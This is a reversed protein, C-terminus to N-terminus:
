WDLDERARFVNGNNDVVVAGPCYAEIFAVAEIVNEAPIDYGINTGGQLTLMPPYRFLEWNTKGYDGWLSVDTGRNDAGGMVDDLKMTPFGEHVTADLATCSHWGNGYIVKDSLGAAIGEALLYTAVRVEENFANVTDPNTGWNCLWEVEDWIFDLFVGDPTWTADNYFGIHATILSDRIAQPRPDLLKWDAQGRLYGDKDRLWGAGNTTDGVIGAIVLQMSTGGDPNKYSVPTHVYVDHGAAQLAKCSDVKADSADILSRWPVVVIDFAYDLVSPVDEGRVFYCTKLREVGVPGPDDMIREIRWYVDVKGYASGALVIHCSDWLGVQFLDDYRVAGIYVPSWDGWTYTHAVGDVSEKFRIFMDDLTAETPITLVLSGPMGESSIAVDVTDAVVPEDGLAVNTGYIANVECHGAGQYFTNVISRGYRDTAIARTTRIRGTEDSAAPVALVLVLLAVLLLRAM